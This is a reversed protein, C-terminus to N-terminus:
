YEGTFKEVTGDMNVIGSTNEPEDKVKYKKASQLATLIEVSEQLKQKHWDIQWQTDKILKDLANNETHNEM